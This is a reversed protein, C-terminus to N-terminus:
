AQVPTEHNSQHGPPSARNGYDMAEVRRPYDLDFEFPEVYRGLDFKYTFDQAVRPLIIRIPVITLNTPFIDVSYISVIADFGAARLAKAVPCEEPDCKTASRIHEQSVKIRTM